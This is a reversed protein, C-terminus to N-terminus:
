KERKELVSRMWGEGGGREDLLREYSRTDPCCSGSMHEITEDTEGCVRCRRDERWSIRGREENGCRFRAILSISRGRQLYWPTRDTQIRSYLSSNLSNYQQQQWCEMDRNRLASWMSEGRFWAANVEEVSWGNRHCYKKRMDSWSSIKGNQVEKLCEKLIKCPSNHIREEYRAAKAGAEIYVPFAKTEAMLISKKTGRDLGLIWRLYKRQILEIAEWMAWGFIEAGYTIAPLILSKFLQMRILFNNKFKRQGIGWVEALRRKGAAAVEEIHKSLKGNNQFVFGLYKFTKVKTIIFDGFKWNEKTLRGGKSFVMNYSKATNVTLEKRKTYRHLVGMMEKMDESRESLVVLDDAYALSFIKQKGIVM